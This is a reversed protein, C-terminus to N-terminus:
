AAFWLKAAKEKTIKLLSVSQDHMLRIYYDYATACRTKKTRNFRSLTTALGDYELMRALNALLYRDRSSATAIKGVQVGCRFIKDGLIWM